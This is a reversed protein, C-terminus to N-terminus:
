GCLVKASPLLSLCFCLSLCVPLCLFLSCHLCRPGGSRLTASLAINGAWWLNWSLLRVLPVIRESFYRRAKIMSRPTQIYAATFSFASQIYRDQKWKPQTLLKHQQQVCLSKKREKKREKKKKGETQKSIKCSNQQQKPIEEM